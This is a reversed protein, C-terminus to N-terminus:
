PSHTRHGKGKRAPIFPCFVFSEDGPSSSFTFSFAYSISFLGIQNFVVPRSQTTKIILPDKKMNEAHFDSSFKNM